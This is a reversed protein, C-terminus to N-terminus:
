ECAGCGGSGCAPAPMCPASGCATDPMGSGVSHASILKQLQESGCAPCCITEDSRRVLTEFSQECQQCHFEYIPM